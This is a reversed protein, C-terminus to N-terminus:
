HLVRLPRTFPKVRPQQQYAEPTPVAKKPEVPQATPTEVRLQPQPVPQTYTDVSDAQRAPQWHSPPPPEPRPLTVPGQETTPQFPTAPKIAILEVYEQQESNMIKEQWDGHAGCGALVM